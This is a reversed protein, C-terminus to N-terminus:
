VDIGGVAWLVAQKIYKPISFHTDSDALRDALAQAFEGKDIHFLLYHAAAARDADREPGRAWDKRSMAALKTRVEPKGAALDAAVSLMVTLSGGEMGLDYEFTKLGNAYLRARGPANVVPALDLAPNRGALEVPSGFEGLRDVPFVQPPFRFHSVIGEQRDIDAPVPMFTVETKKDKSKFAGQPDQDTLGACRVPLSQADDDDLDCFLQMFHRFYIGNMSIVSVGADALTAPLRLHDKPLAANHERLVRKALEPLLLAEAIGEVLIVGRAFLLTSKTADLWRSTHYRCRNDM